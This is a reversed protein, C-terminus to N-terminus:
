REQGRKTTELLTPTAIAELTYTNKKQEALDRVISDFTKGLTVNATNQTNNINNNINIGGRKLYELVEGGIRMAEKEGEQMGKYLSNLFTM